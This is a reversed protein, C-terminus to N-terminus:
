SKAAKLQYENIGEIVLKLYYPDKLSNILQDYNYGRAEARAEDSIRKFIHYKQRKEDHKEGEKETTPFPCLRDYDEYTKGNCVADWLCERILKNIYDENLHESIIKKLYEEDALLKKDFAKEATKNKGLGLFKFINM